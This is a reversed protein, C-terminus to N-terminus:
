HNQKQKAGGGAGEHDSARERSMGDHSSKHEVGAQEKTTEEESKNDTSQNDSDNTKTQTM